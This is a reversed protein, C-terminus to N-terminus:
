EFINWAIIYCFPLRLKYLSYMAQSISHRSSCPTFLKLFGFTKRVIHGWITDIPSYTGNNLSKVENEGDELPFYQDTQSPMVLVRATIGELAKRYDGAGAVTGVDGAQWMRAMAIFDEADWSEFVATSEPPHLWDKLSAAGFQKWLNQRFWEPSTLWAAYARGFARLGQTPEV